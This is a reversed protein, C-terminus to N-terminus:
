HEVEVTVEQHKMVGQREFLSSTSTHEDQHSGMAVFKDWEHQVKPKQKQKSGRASAGTM